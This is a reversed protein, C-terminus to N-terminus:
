ARRTFVMRLAGFLGAKVRQVAAKFPKVYLLITFITVAAFAMAVVPDPADGGIRESLWLSDFHLSELGDVLEAFREDNFTTRVGLGFGVRIKM